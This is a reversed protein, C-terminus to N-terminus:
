KVDERQAPLLRFLALDEESLEYLVPRGQVMAPATGTEPDPTGIQLIRRLGEDGGTLDLTLRLYPIELGYTQLSGFTSPTDKLIDVAKLEAFRRLWEDLITEHIYAGVPVETEWGLGDATRRIAVSTGDRHLVAMRRITDAPLSLVTRNILRRDLHDQLLFSPLATRKVRYFRALDKRYVRLSEPDPDDYVALTRPRGPEETRSLTMELLPTESPVGEILDGTLATVAGLLERVEAHEAALALPRVLSWLGNEKTLEVVGDRRAPQLVIRDPEPFDAVVPLDRFNTVFPGRVGFLAKLSEPVSVVAQYADLLCFVNGPRAPDAKGFRLTFGDRVGRVLVSLRLANEEDLGYISLAADTALDQTVEPLTAVSAQDAPRVYASIVAPDTLAKLAAAVQDAKTEFPFPLTVSWNGAPMRCARTFPQDPARWEMQRIREPSVPLIARTRMGAATKPLQSVHSAEVAVLRGQTEVLAQSLAMPLVDGFACTWERDPASLTLYREPTFGAEEAKGLQNLIRMKEAADLLSAVASSDCRAGPYPHIMRWFEGARTLKMQCSKGDPGLVDWSVAVVSESRIPFLAGGPVPADKPKYMRTVVLASSLLLILGLLLLINRGFKM